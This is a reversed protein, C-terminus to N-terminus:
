IVGHEGVETGAGFHLAEVAPVIGPTMWDLEPSGWDWWASSSVRM